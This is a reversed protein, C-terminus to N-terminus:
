KNGKGHFIIVKISSQVLGHQTYILFQQSLPHNEKTMDWIIHIGKKNMLTLWLSFKGNTKPLFAKHM